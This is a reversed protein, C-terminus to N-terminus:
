LPVEVIRLGRREGPTLSKLIADFEDGTMLLHDVGSTWLETGIRAKCLARRRRLYVLMYWKRKRTM